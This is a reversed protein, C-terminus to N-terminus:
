NRRLLYFHQINRYNRIFKKIDFKYIQKDSFQDILKISWNEVMFIYNRQFYTSSLIYIKGSQINTRFFVINIWGNGEILLFLLLLIIGNSKIWM